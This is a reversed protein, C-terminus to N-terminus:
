VARTEDSEAEAGFVTTTGVGPGSYNGVEGELFGEASLTSSVLSALGSVSGANSVDVTVTSPDIDPAPVTTTEVESGDPEQGILEAVFDRVEDPDVQVVSEGYQTIANLDQVPITSFTVDGGALNQLQTALA